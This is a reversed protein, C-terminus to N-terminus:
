GPESGTRHRTDHLGAAIALAHARGPCAHPGAGFALDGALRLEVLVGGHMRRTLPVPPDDRLAAALADQAPGPRHAAARVLAATADCAQVLLGIRAATADDPTGGAADVLRAVAADADPGALTHPQYCRAVTAVDAAAVRPLGLARALLTVPTLDDPRVTAAASARLAAPDVAALADTALARRRRHAAGTSFRAVHSRLWGVGAPAAAVTPVTYAPDVLAARVAAPDSRSQTTM